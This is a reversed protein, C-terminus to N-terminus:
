RAIRTVFGRLLLYPLIALVIAVVIVEGPYVFRTAVFQYVADLILALVFVKGVDKWGDKLMDARQVPDTVIGWFYPPKGAKADKLGATIAFISAMLPQLVLRFKMPGTIRDRMDDLFRMWIDDMAGERACVVADGSEFKNVRVVRRTHSADYSCRRPMAPWTVGRAFALLRSVARM